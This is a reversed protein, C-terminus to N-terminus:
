HMGNSNRMLARASIMRLLVKWNPSVKQFCVRATVHASAGCNVVSVKAGAEEFYLAQNGAVLGAEWKGFSENMIADSDSEQLRIVAEYM